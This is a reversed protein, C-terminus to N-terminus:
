VPQTPETKKSIQVTDYLKELQLKKDMIKQRVEDHAVPDHGVNDLQQKLDLIQDALSSMKGDRAKATADPQPWLRAIIAAIAFFTVAWTRYPEPILPAMIQFKAELASIVALLAMIQVSTFRWAQKAEPILM